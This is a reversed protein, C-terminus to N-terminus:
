AGVAGAFQRWLVPHPGAPDLEEALNEVVVQQLDGNTRSALQKLNEPFARVHQYYQEAYLALAERSLTGAAWARYFPHKLLHYKEVLKDLGALVPNTHEK